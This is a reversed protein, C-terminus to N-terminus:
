IQGIKTAVYNWTGIFWSRYCGRPVSTMPESVTSVEMISQEHCPIYRPKRKDYHRHCRIAGSYEPLQISIIQFWSIM